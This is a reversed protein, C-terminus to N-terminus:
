NEFYNKLIKQLHKRGWGSKLFRERDLADEKNAFAEYHIIKWPGKNKTSPNDGDNHQKLRKKLDRTFGKYLSGTTECELIYVYYM